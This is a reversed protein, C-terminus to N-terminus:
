EAVDEATWGAGPEAGEAAVQGAGSPAGTLGGASAVEVSAPAGAACTADTAGAAGAAGEPKQLKAAIRAISVRPLLRSSFVIVKALAGPCCVAKNKGLAAVAVKAAYPADITMHALATNGASANDWFPTNVPAPCLATVNVGYPQLEVHLATSLSQVFAKSSYYTAMYPGPMFGAVSAVNLIGGHGRVAMEPAFASCLEMLAMCNTQVLDKQRRADSEIFPKNYGFGANNVLIEVRLGAEQVQAVLADVAAPQALDAVFTHVKAGHQAQMQMALQALKNHSRGVLALELFPYARYLERTLEQGIGGTAGTILICPMTEHVTGAVAKAAGMEGEASAASGVIGTAGEDLVAGAEKATMSM